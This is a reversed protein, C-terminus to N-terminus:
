SGSVELGGKVPGVAVLYLLRSERNLGLLEAAEWDYLAGIGCCGLGLATAALYLREGLRGATLMAYRYGRAGCTRDILDLNSIFLFHVAAQTLWAQDLCIRAATELYTGAGAKGFARKSTEMLYFGPELAEAHGALFGPCVSRDYGAEQSSDSADSDCLTDLLAMMAEKGIPMKVFNRRSRRHFLAERYNMVDPWPLSNPIKIRNEPTVGIECAMDLDGTPAQFDAIGAEHVERIAPYPIENESVRSAKKLNNPLGDIEGKEAEQISDDDPVRIVALAVERTEDLGLLHNVKKDDFDYSLGFPVGL